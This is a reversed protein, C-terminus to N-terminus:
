GTLINSSQVLPLETESPEDMIGSERVEAYQAQSVAKEYLTAYKSTMPDDDTEIGANMLAGYVYVEWANVSLWNERAEGGSTLDYASDTRRNYEAEAAAIFSPIYSTLDTRHLKRLVEAKIDGYNM